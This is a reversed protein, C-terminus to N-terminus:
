KAADENLGSCDLWRKSRGHYQILNRRPRPVLTRGRRVSLQPPRGSLSM